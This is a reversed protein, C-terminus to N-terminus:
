RSIPTLPIGESHSTEAEIVETQDNEARDTETQTAATQNASAQDRALTVNVHHNTRKQVVPVTGEFLVSLFKGLIPMWVFLAVFQGYSWGGFVPDSQGEGYTDGLASRFMVFNALNYTGLAMTFLELLTLALQSTVATLLRYWRHGTLEKTPFLVPVFGKMFWDWLLIPIIGHIAWYTFKSSLISEEEQMLGNYAFGEDSEGYNLCYIKPGANQGCSKLGADQKFSKEAEVKDAWGSILIVYAMMWTFVVWLLTYWWRNQTKHLAIQVSLIPYISISVMDDLLLNNIYWAWLTHAKGFGPSGIEAYVVVGVISLIALYQSQAEQFDAITSAVAGAFRNNSLRDQWKKAIEAAKLYKTWSTTFNLSLVFFMSLSFQILYAIFLGPGALDGDIGLDGNTCYNHSMIYGFELTKEYTVPINQFEDFELSCGLESIFCSETACARYNQFVDVYNFDELPGLQFRQRVEKEDDRNITIRPHGEDPNNWTTMHLTALGVCNWLTEASKFLYTSNSGAETCSIGDAETKCGDDILVIPDKTYNAVREILKLWATEWNQWNQVWDDQQSQGKTINIGREIVNTM